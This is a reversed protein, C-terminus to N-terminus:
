RHQPRCCEEFTIGSSCPCLDEDNYSMQTTFNVYVTGNTSRTWPFDIATSLFLVLKQGLSEKKQDRIAIYHEKILDLIMQKEALGSFRERGQLYRSLQLALFVFADNSLGWALRLTSQQAIDWVQPLVKLVDAQRLIFGFLTLNHWQQQARTGFGSALLKQALGATTTEKFRAM